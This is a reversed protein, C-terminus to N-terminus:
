MPQYYYGEGWITLIPLAVGGAKLKKKIASIFTAVTGKDNLYPTKWVTEYLEAYTFRKEPHCVLLYLLGMEIPTFHIENGGSLIINKDPRIQTGDPLLVPAPTSSQVHRDLRRICSAIRALLERPEFPKSIFDDGGMQLAKELVDPGDLATIYIVFCRQNTQRLATCFTFGDCQPMMIDLLVVDFPRRRCADLAERGNAATEYGYGSKSLLLAIMERIDSDDDVILITHQKHQM